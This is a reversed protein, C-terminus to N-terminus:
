VLQGSQGRHSQRYGDGGSALGSTGREGEVPNLMTRGTLGCAQRPAKKDRFTMGIDILELTILLRDGPGRHRTLQAFSKHQSRTQPHYFSWM